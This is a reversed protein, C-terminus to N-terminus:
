NDNDDKDKGTNKYILLIIPNLSKSFLNIKNDDKFHKLINSYYSIENNVKNIFSIVIHLYKNVDKKQKNLENVEKQVKELSDEQEKVALKINGYRQLEDILLKWRESKSITNKANENETVNDINYM